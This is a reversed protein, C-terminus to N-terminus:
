CRMFEAFLALDSSFRRVAAKWPHHKPCTKKKPPPHFFSLTTHCKICQGRWRTDEPCKGCVQRANALSIWELMKLSCVPSSESNKGKKPKEFDPLEMTRIMGMGHFSIAGFFIKPSDWNRKNGDASWTMQTITKLWATAHNGLWWVQCSPLIVAYPQWFM